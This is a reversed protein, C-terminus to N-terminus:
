PKGAPFGGTVGRNKMPLVQSLEKHLRPLDSTLSPLAAM